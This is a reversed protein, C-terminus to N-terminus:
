ESPGRASTTGNTSSTARRGSNRKVEGGDARLRDRVERLQVDGPVEVRSPAYGNEAGDADGFDVVRAPFGRLGTLARLPASRRRGRCPPTASISCAAPVVGVTLTASDPAVVSRISRPASNKSLAEVREAVPSVYWFAPEGVVDCKAVISRDAALLTLLKVVSRAPSASIRPRTALM